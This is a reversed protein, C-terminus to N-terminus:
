WMEKGVPSGWDMEQPQYDGTYGEFLDAITKKKHPLVEKSAAESREPKNILHNHEFDYADFYAIPNRSQNRDAFRGIWSQKGDDVTANFSIRRDNEKSISKIKGVAVIKSRPSLIIVNDCGIMRRPDTRWNSSAMDIYDKNSLGEQWSNQSLKITVLEM